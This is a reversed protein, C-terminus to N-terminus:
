STLESESSVESTPQPSNLSPLSNLTSEGFLSSKERLFDVVEGAEENDLRVGALSLAMLAKRNLSDIMEEKSSFNPERLRYFLNLMEYEAEDVQVVAQVATAMNSDTPVSGDEQRRIRLTIRRLELYQRGTLERALKYDTGDITFSVFEDSETAM